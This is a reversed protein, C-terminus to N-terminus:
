PGKKEAPTQDDGGAIRLVYILPGDGAAIMYRGSPDLDLVLRRNASGLPIVERARKFDPNWLRIVGDHGSSVLMKGDSTFKLSQIQAGHGPLTRKKKGEALDWVGITGDKHGTALVRGDRRFAVATMSTDQWSHVEAGSEVDWVKVCNKDWSAAALLKGDGSFAVGFCRGTGPFCHQETGSDADWLRVSDQNAGGAITKGDPSFAVSDLFLRVTWRNKLTAADWARMTTDDHHRYVHHGRVALAFMKGDQSYALSMFSDHPNSYQAEFQHIIQNTGPHSLDWRRLTDDNGASLVTKGDPSVALAQVHQLHGRELNKEKWSTTDWVHVMGGGLALLKGDTSFALCRTGSGVSLTGKLAQSAVDHLMVRNCGIAALTKGDPSLAMINFSNWLNVPIDAIRKWSAVEWVGVKNTLHCALLKGNRSFAISSLPGTEGDSSLTMQQQGDATKYIRIPIDPRDEVRAVALLEGDPSFALAAQADKTIWGKRGEPTIEVPTEWHGWKWLNIRGSSGGAALFRGDASVAMMGWIEGLKPQLTQPAAEKDLPWLKLTGDQSASVLTRSDKSFAVVSVRGTHGRLIREVRGTAVDRLMVTKDEGGSALWRGNPSFAVSIIPMSGTHTQEAEGLVGVLRAPAKNPDGGGAMALAEPPIQHPVFGGAVLVPPLVPRADPELRVLIARQGGADIEVEEGFVKFGAKKVQIRHKKGPAVRVEATKGDGWKVTVTGGDVTVEADAPLNELVLTGDKTWAKLVVAALVGLLGLLLLGAAVGGGIFWMRKSPKAASPQRKRDAGSKRPGASATSGETLTDWAVPAAETTEAAKRKAEEAAPALPRAPQAEPAGAPLDPSKPAAGGKAGQRAFVSLAQAVEIPTQYRQAPGKAMMKRVVAALEEPVEPRVQNLPRAEVSHHAHLLQYLTQGKFPAAGTLLYYLTCGLSYIDARTDARAADMTQEPAIYDPTGLMKGEGTLGTDEAKESKVKALGFDLVKVVHKKGERTLMLNQPKIDRHVMQKEFAHQLGLAAQQAYYCAHAVPLPGRSKVLAALDEGEVYQMAFALLDGLQLASYATVVNVHSLKAASRIERLFREVAGPRDLLAKNVVKLVELRDMLKNKALYVVGM